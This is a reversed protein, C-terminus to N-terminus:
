PAPPPPPSKAPLANAQHAPTQGQWELAYDWLDYFPQDLQLDGTRAIAQSSIRLSRRGLEGDIAAVVALLRRGAISQAYPDMKKFRNYEKLCWRWDSPSHLSWNAPGATAGPAVQNTRFNNVDPDKAIIHAALDQHTTDPKALAHCMMNYM